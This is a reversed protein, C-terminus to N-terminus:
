ASRPLPGRGLAAWRRENREGVVPSAFRDVIPTAGLVGMNALIRSVLFSARRFTRKINPKDSQEFQWPVLQCFVVNAVTAQALVGDGVVTAGTTV